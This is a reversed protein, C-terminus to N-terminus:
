KIEGSIIWTKEFSVMVISLVDQVVTFKPPKTGAEILIVRCLKIHSVMYHCIHVSSDIFPIATVTIKSHPQLLYRWFKPL